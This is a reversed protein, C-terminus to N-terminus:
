QQATCNCDTSPVTERENTAGGLQHGGTGCGGTRREVKSPGEGELDGHCSVSSRVAPVGLPTM